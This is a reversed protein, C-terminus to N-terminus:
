RATRRQFGFRRRVTAIPERHVSKPPVHSKQIWDGMRIGERLADVGWSEGSYDITLRLVVLPGGCASSM